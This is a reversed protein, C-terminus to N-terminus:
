ICVEARRWSKTFLDASHLRLLRLYYSGLCGQLLQQFAQNCVFFKRGLVLPFSKFLYPLVTQFSFMIPYGTNQPYLPYLFNQWYIAGPLHKVPQLPQSVIRPPLHVWFVDVSLAKKGSLNSNLTDFLMISFIGVSTSRQTSGVAKIDSQEFGGTEVSM